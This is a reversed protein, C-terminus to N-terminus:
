LIGRFAQKYSQIYTLSFVEKFYASFRSKYFKKSLYGVIVLPIYGRLGDDCESTTRPPKDLM